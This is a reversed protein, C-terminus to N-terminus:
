LGTSGTAALYRRGRCRAQPERARSVHSHHDTGHTLYSPVESGNWVGTPLTLTALGQESESSQVLGLPMALELAQASLPLLFLFAFSRLM